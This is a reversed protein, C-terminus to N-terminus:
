ISNESIESVMSEEDRLVKQKLPSQLQNKANEQFGGHEKNSTIKSRPKLNAM